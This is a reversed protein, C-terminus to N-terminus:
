QHDMRSGIWREVRETALSSARFIHIKEFRMPMETCDAHRDAHRDLHRDVIYIRCTRRCAGNAHGDALGNDAATEGNMGM